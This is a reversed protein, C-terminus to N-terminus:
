SDSQDLHMALLAAIRRITEPPPYEVDGILHQARDIASSRVEPSSSLAQNLGASQSFQVNDTGGSKPLPKTSPGPRQSVTAINTNLNVEMSSVM